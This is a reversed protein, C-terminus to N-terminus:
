SKRPIIAKITEDGYQEVWTRFSAELLEKMQMGKMAATLKFARHFDPDVKFNLDQYGSNPKAMNNPPTPRASQPAAPPQDHAELPVDMTPALDPQVVLGRRLGRPPPPVSVKKKDEDDAM